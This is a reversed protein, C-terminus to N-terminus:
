NMDRIITGGNGNGGGTVVVELYPKTNDLVLNTDINVSGDFSFPNGNGVEELEITVKIGPLATTSYDNIQEQVVSKQSYRKGPSLVTYELTKSGNSNAILKALVSNM